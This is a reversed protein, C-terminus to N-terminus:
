SHSVWVLLLYQTAEWVRIRMFDGGEMASNETSYVEGIGSCIGEAVTHNMFRIPIDYIQVWFLIHDFCLEWAPMRKEYRQIAVLHKDFSWPQSAVVRDAELKSDFIFDMFDMVGFGRAGNM